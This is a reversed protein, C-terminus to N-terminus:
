NPPNALPIAPAWGLWEKKPEEYLAFIAGDKAAEGAKPGDPTAFSLGGSILSQLSEVNVQAGKFLGIDVNLGSANWFKSEARVLPAYPHRILTDVEIRRADDSLRLKQVAGVEIGRYYVPSGVRLSGRDAAILVIKLGKDEPSAPPNEAGEFIKKSAGSGPLAEIHPGSIITSLGSVNAVGIAPRVIWFITGEKALAEAGRELRAEVEVTKLDKSLALSRVEGVTVGRYKITSQGPRLGSGDKFRITIRPGGQAMRQYVLYGAVAAAIIPVVWVVSMRRRHRVIAREVTPEPTDIAKM